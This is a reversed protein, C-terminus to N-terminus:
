WPKPEVVFGHSQAIDRIRRIDEFKLAGYSFHDAMQAFGLCITEAMCAFVTGSRETGAIPGIDQDLPLRFVGGRLFTANPRAAETGPAIDGPVAIDCVVIPETGLHSAHLLPEASNSATVVVRCTRLQDLDSTAEIEADAYAARLESALATLRAMAARRGVLVVGAGSELALRAVMSGINGTAGVIGVRGLPIGRARAADDAAARASAVNLSNGSTVGIADTAVMLCNMTVISTFGGLGVV